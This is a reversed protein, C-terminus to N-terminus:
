QRKTFRQTTNSSVALNTYNADYDRTNIKMLNIKLSARPCNLGNKTLRRLPVLATLLNNHENIAKREINIKHFVCTYSILRSSGRSIWFRWWLLWAKQSHHLLSDVCSFNGCHFVDCPLASDARDVVNVTTVAM